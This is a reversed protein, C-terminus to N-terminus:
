LHSLTYHTTRLIHDIYQARHVATNGRGIDDAYRLNTVKRGGIRFGDEFGDLATHVLVEAM